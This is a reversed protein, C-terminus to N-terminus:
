PCPRAAWVWGHLPRRLGPLRRRRLPHAPLRRPRQPRLRPARRRRLARRDAALRRQLDPRRRLHFTLVAGDDSVEWSEAAAPVVNLDRDLRTLGEYNGSLFATFELGSSMQPDFTDPYYRQQVRLVNESGDQAVAGGAVLPAGLLLALVGVAHLLRMVAPTFQM